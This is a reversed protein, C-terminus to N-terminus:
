SRRGVEVGQEKQDDPAKLEKRWVLEELPLGVLPLLERLARFVQVLCGEAEM